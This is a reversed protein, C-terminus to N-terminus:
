RGKGPTKGRSRDYTTSLGYECGQQETMAYIAMGAREFSRKTTEALETTLPVPALLMKNEQGDHLANILKTSFEDSAKDLLLKRLKGAYHWHIPPEFM